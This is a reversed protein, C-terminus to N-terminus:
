KVRCPTPRIISRRRIRAAHRRVRLQGPRTKAQAKTTRGMKARKGGTKTSRTMIGKKWVRWARHVKGKAELEGARELEDDGGGVENKGGNQAVVFVEGVDRADDPLDEVDVGEVDNDDEGPEAEEAQQERVLQEAGAEQSFAEAGVEGEEPAQADDDLEEVVVAGGAFVM